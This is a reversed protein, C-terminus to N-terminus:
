VVKKELVKKAVQDSLFEIHNEEYALTGGKFYVKTVQSEMTNGNWTTVIEKALNSVVNDEDCDQYWKDSTLKGPVSAEVKHNAEYYGGDAADHSAVIAALADQEDQPLDEAFLIKLTEPSDWTVGSTDQSIDPSADVQKKLLSVDVSAKTFDYETM